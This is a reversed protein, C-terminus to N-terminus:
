FEHKIEKEVAAATIAAHSANWAARGKQVVIVQPSEHRIGLYEGVRALDRNERVRLLYVPMEPNSRVFREMEAHAVASFPCVTSHKFIVATEARLAEELIGQKDLEIFM